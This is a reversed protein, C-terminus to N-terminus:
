NNRNIPTDERNNERVQAEYNADEMNNLIQVFEIKEESSLRQLKIADVHM